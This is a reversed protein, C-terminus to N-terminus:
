PRIERRVNASGISFVADNANRCGLRSNFNEARLSKGARRHRWRTVRAANRASKSAPITDARMTRGCATANAVNAPIGGSYPKYPAINGAITPASQPEEHCRTDPGVFAVDSITKAVTLASATGNV